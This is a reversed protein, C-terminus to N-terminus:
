LGIIFPPAGGQLVLISPKWLHPYLVNLSTTYSMMQPNGFTQPWKPLHYLIDNSHHQHNETAIFMFIHIMGGYIDLIGM